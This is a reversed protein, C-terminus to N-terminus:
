KENMDWFYECGEETYPPTALYSQWRSSPAMYRWCDEKVPCEGGLCMAIDAMLITRATQRLFARDALPCEAIAHLVAAIRRDSSLTDEPFSWFAEHCADILTRRNTLM